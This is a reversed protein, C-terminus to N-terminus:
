LLAAEPAPLAGYLVDDPVDTGPWSVVYLVSRYPRARFQRLLRPRLPHDCSLTLVLHDLGRAHANARLADVLSRAAVPDADEVAFAALYGLQLESGCPPLTPRRALTLGANVLPRLAHLWPAYGTVLTQKFARQDWVAGAAIMRGRDEVLHFDSFSLNSGPVGIPLERWVPAMAHGRLSHELFALIADRDEVRGARAAGPHRARSTPLVLTELEGVPRYHPLGPLGRELLRRAPLNDAVITTIDFELEDPQHSDRMLEFAARLRRLGALSGAVRLRTLYGLLVRQGGLWVPRVSRTGTGLLADTEADRSVLTLHRLGEFEAAYSADPERALAVQVLGDMPRQRLLARIAPDDARTAPRVLTATM